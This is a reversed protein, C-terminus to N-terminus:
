WNFINIDVNLLFKLTRQISSYGSVSKREIYNETMVLSLVLSFSYTTIVNGQGFIFKSHTWAGVLFRCLQFAAAISSSFMCNGSSVLRYELVIKIKM